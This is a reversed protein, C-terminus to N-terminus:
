KRLKESAKSQRDSQYEHQRCGQLRKTCFRIATKSYVIPKQVAPNSCSGQRTGARPSGETMMPQAARTDISRLDPSERDDVKRTWAAKVAGEVDRMREADWSGIRQLMEVTVNSSELGKLTMMPQIWPQEMKPKEWRGVYEIRAHLSKLAPMNEAIITWFRKWTAWDYPAYRLGLFSVPDEYYSWSIKLHRIAAMRPRRVLPMDNWFVLINIDNLSFVNSGYLVDIAERYIARCTLLLPLGTTSIGRWNAKNFAPPQYIPASFDNESPFRTHKICKPFHFLHLINKGIAIEYISLRLELPLRFFPSSKKGIHPALSTQSIDIRTNLLAHPRDEKLRLKEWKEEKEAQRDPYNLPNFIRQLPKRICAPMNNIPTGQLFSYSM